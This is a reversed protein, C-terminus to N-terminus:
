RGAGRLLRLGNLIVLLAVGTDAFVAMWLTAKGLVALLLVAFKVVVSFVVNQTINRVTRRGLRFFGALAELDDAMLAVDATELATDSAAAGMAIGIDAAALAPADNVGDGVMAVSGYRAKLERVADVKEAPLLRSRVESVGARSAVAAATRENDGTLMVVHEIGARRLGAVTDASEPRMEDAVGLLAVAENERSLVLVTHGRQEMAAIRDEAGDRLAGAERAFVPSGVAYAVRGVRATVGRGPVDRYESMAALSAADCAEEGAARRLAGAIPHTSGSELMAALCVIEEAPMSDLPIVEAVEPRGRTLTGTKDFAVARVRPATELFAGGKVLLGDRTARTIASVIAVPTSIVLACPCSIVLLVLARYFWVDFGGLGALPPLVAIAAALGVVAPTYYRTFRDVLRQMPARQAQAEEVLYIVRSLTSDAALSTVRVDLLGTTNLTGAFVGDGRRKDVPASEGTIPAEDVASEGGVVEGDLAIREGPKVIMLDGVIVDGPAIEIERGDRRLRAREPTLQVLDRISRRTRALSRAELLGGLSFLFVVTAGESWQGIAAAGFVAVTMLVNMDLSRARASALARRATIWGGTVIALAFAAIAAVHPAPTLRELLAGAVLLVGAVATSIEHRNTDWWGPGTGAPPKGAGVIEPVYGAKSIADAIADPSLRRPDYGVRMRAVNFDLDANQVGAIGAVIGRLKAGCDPCDLGRIAFEAVARGAEGGLAWAGYGMRKLASVVEVRPDQKPDYEIVLVGSAFNLGAALVGEIYSISKDISRACDPCDLGTVKYAAHGVAGAVELGLSRVTTELEADSLVETDHIVRLTGAGPDVETFEVGALGDVADKLRRVCDVCYVPSPVVVPLELTHDHTGMHQNM